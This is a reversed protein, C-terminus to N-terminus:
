GETFSTFQQVVLDSASFNALQQHRAITHFNLLGHRVIVDEWDWSEDLSEHVYPFRISCRLGKEQMRRKLVNSSVFNSMGRDKVSQNPVTYECWVQVETCWSPPIFNALQDASNVAWVNEGEGLALRLAQAACVGVLIQISTNKPNNYLRMASGMMWRGREEEPVVHENSKLTTPKFGAVDTYLRLFTFRKGECNSMAVVGTPYKGRLVFEGNEKEYAPLHPHYKMCEPQVDDIPIGRRRFFSKLPESRQDDREIILVEHGIAQLRQRRFHKKTLKNHDSELAIREATPSPTLPDSIEAIFIEGVKNLIESRDGMEPVRELLEFADIEQGNWMAKGTADFDSSLLFDSPFEGHADSFPRTIAEGINNLFLDYHRTAQRLLSTFGITKPVVQSLYQTYTEGQLNM